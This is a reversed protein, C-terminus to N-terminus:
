AGPRRYPDRAPVAVGPGPGSAPGTAAGTGPEADPEAGDSAPSRSSTPAAAGPRRFAVDSSTGPGMTWGELPDSPVPEPRPSSAVSRAFRAAGGSGREARGTADAGRAFVSPDAPPAAVPPEDDPLDGDPAATTSADPRPGAARTEAPGAVVVPRVAGVADVADVARAPHLLAALVGGALVAGVLAPVIHIVAVWPDTQYTGVQTTVRGGDQDGPVEISFTVEGHTLVAWVAVLVVSALSLAAVALAVLAATRRLRPGTAPLGQWSARDLAALGVLAVAGWALPAVDYGSAISMTVREWLSGAANGGAFGTTPTTLRWLAVLGALAGVAAAVVLALPLLGLAREARRGVYETADM